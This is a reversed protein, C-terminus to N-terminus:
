DKLMECTLSTKCVSTFLFDCEISQQIIELPFNTVLYVTQSGVIIPKEDSMIAKIERILEFLNSKRM